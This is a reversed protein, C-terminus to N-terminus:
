QDHHHHHHHHHPLAQVKNDRLCKMVLYATQCEDSGKEETCKTIAEVKKERDPIDAPLKELMKDKNFQGDVMAGMEKAMCATFCKIKQDPEEGNKQAEHAKHLEEKEIGGEKLCKEFTAKMKARKEEDGLVGVLLACTVLVFISSRM